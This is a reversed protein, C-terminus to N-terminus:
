AGCLNVTAGSKNDYAKFSDILVGDSVRFFRWPHGIYTNIDKSEGLNLVGYSVQKCGYDVWLIDIEFKCQNNITLTLMTSAEGQTSHECQLNEIVSEYSVDSAVADPNKLIGSIKSGMVAVKTGGQFQDFQATVMTEQIVRNVEDAFSGDSGKAIFVSDYKPDNTLRLVYVSINKADIVPPKFGYVAGAAITPTKVRKGNADASYCGVSSQPKQATAMSETQCTLYVGSINSPVDAGEDGGGENTTQTIAPKRSENCGPCCALPALLCLAWISNWTKAGCNMQESEHRGMRKFSIRKISRESRIWPFTLFFPSRTFPLSITFFIYGCWYVVFGRDM